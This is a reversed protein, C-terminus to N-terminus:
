QKKKKEKEHSILWKEDLKNSYKEIQELLKWFLDLSPSFLEVSSEDYWKDIEKLNPNKIM